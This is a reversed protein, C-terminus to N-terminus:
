EIAPPPDHAGGGGPGAPEPLQDVQRERGRRRLSRRAHLAARVAAGHLSAVGATRPSVSAAELALALFAAQAADEADQQHRLTRRCVGLVMPAHRRLLAAFAQDDQREVFAALLEADTPEAGGALL